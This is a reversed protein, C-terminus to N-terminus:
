IGPTSCRGAKGGVGERASTSQGVPTAMAGGDEQRHVAEGPDQQINLDQREPLDGWGGHGLGALPWALLVPGRGAPGQPCYRPDQVAGAQGELLKAGHGALLPLLASDPPCFLLRQMTKLCPSRHGKGSPQVGAPESSQPAQSDLGLLWGPAPRRQAM